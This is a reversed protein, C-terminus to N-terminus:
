KLACTVNRGTMFGCSRAVAPGDIALAARCYPFHYHLMLPRSEDQCTVNETDPEQPEYHPNRWNRITVNTPRFGPRSCHSSNVQSPAQATRSEAAFPLSLRRVILEAVM